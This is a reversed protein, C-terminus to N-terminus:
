KRAVIKLFYVTLQGLKYMIVPYLYDYHIDNTINTVNGIEAMSNKSNSKLMCSFFNKENNLYFFVKSFVM